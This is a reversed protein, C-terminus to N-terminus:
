QLAAIPVGALIKKVTNVQGSAQPQPQSKGHTSLQPTRQRERWVILKIIVTLENFM